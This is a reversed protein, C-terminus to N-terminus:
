AVQKSALATQPTASGMVQLIKLAETQVDIQRCAKQLKRRLPKTPSAGYAAIIAANSEGRSRLALCSAFYLAHEGLKQPAARPSEAPTLYASIQRPMQALVFGQGNYAAAVLTVMRQMQPSLAAAPRFKAARLEALQLLITAAFVGPETCDRPDYLIPTQSMSYYPNEGSIFADIRRHSALQNANLEGDDAVLIVDFENWFKGLCLCVQTRFPAM